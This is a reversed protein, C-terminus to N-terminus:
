KISDTGLYKDNKNYYWARTKPMKIDNVRVEETLLIYEGTEKGAGKPDGKYFQYVEMAYTTPDFYLFWVDTGVAEDYRAKLVLYEKGKFTRKEVTESIHTGPDKLKMPLGYLYTYYNKYLAAMECPSRKADPKPDTISTTCNEKDITYTFSEGERIITTSFYEDPLNIVVESHGKTGDARQLTLQLTDSFTEWNGQPDHYSITKDLLQRGTLEQAITPSLLFFSALLVFLKM